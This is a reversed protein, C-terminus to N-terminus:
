PTVLPLFALVCFRLFLFSVGIVAGPRFEGDLQNGKHCAPKGLSCQEDAAVASVASRTHQPLQGGVDFQDAVDMRLPANYSGAGGGIGAFFAGM